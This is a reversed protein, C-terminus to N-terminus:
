LIKHRKRRNIVLANFAFASLTTSNYEDRYLYNVNLSGQIPSFPSHHEWAKRVANLGHRMETVSLDTMNNAYSVVSKDETTM